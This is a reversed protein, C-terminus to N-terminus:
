VKGLLAQVEDDDNKFSGLSAIETSLMGKRFSAVSGLGKADCTAKAISDVGFLTGIINVVASVPDKVTDYTALAANGLEGAVAIIREM